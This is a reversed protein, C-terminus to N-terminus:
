RKRSTPSHSKFAPQASRDVSKISTDGGNITISTSPAGSLYSLKNGHNQDTEYGTDTSSVSSSRSRPESNTNNSFDADWKETPQPSGQREEKRTGFEDQINGLKKDYENVFSSMDYAVDLRRAERAHELELRREERAHELGLRRAERTHELELKREERADNLGLIVQQRNHEKVKHEEVQLAFDMALEQTPFYGPFNEILWKPNSWQTFDEAFLTISGNWGTDQLNKAIQPRLISNIVDEINRNIAYKNKVKQLRAAAVIKVFKNIIEPDFFYTLFHKKLNAPNSLFELIQDADISYEAIHESKKSETILNSGKEEDIRKMAELIQLPNEEISKLYKLTEEKTSGEPDFLGKFYEKLFDIIRNVLDSHLETYRTPSKDIDPAGM